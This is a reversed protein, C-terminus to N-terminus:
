EVSRQCTDYEELIKLSSSTGIRQAGADIMAACTKWDRIGGAAKVKIGDGVVSKMMSVAKLTAGSIGLGTSTKVFDPGVNKAIEAVTRIEEDTLYCIEFIVKSLVNYRKCTAVIARMEKEIYTHNKNKLEGINIVYDIEDAGNQIADETEFVKAAITAQGLPFAIAAGVHVGTGRLLDKCLAVPAPNIAVMAFQNDQAERCLTEFDQMDAFAKLNTHDFLNCLQARTIKTSEM